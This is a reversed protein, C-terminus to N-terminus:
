LDPGLGCLFMSLVKEPFTAALALAVESTNAQGAIVHVPPLKLIQMGMALDAALTHRDLKSSLPSQTRGHLRLDFLVCNFTTKIDPQETFGKVWSLDMMLPHILLLWPHDVKNSITEYYLSVDSSLELHPM